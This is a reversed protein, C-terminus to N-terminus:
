RLSPCPVNTEIRLLGTPVTELHETALRSTECPLCTPAESGAGPLVAPVDHGLLHRLVRGKIQARWPHINLHERRVREWDHIVFHTDKELAKWLGNYEPHAMFLFQSDLLEFKVLQREVKRRLAEYEDGPMRGIHVHYPGLEQSPDVLGYKASLIFYYDVRKKLWSAMLLFTKGIFLKQAPSAHPLQERDDCIIGIM